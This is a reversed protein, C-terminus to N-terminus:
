TLWTLEEPSSQQGSSQRVISLFIQELTKKEDEAGPVGSQLEESLGQAVLRGKPIIAVHSCLRCCDESRIALETLPAQSAKMEPVERGALWPTGQHDNKRANNFFEPPVCIKYHEETGLLYQRQRQDM